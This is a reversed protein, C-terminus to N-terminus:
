TRNSYDRKKYWRAKAVIKNVDSTATFYYKDGKRLPITVTEFGGGSAAKDSYFLDSIWSVGNDQSIHIAGTGALNPYLVCLFGDYLATLATAASTVISVTEWDSLELQNAIYTAVANSTVPNLDGDQVTDSTFLIEQNEEETAYIQNDEPTAPDPNGAHDVGVIKLLQPKDGRHLTAAGAPQGETETRTVYFIKNGAMIKRRIHKELESLSRSKMM